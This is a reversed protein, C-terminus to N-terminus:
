GGQKALVIEVADGPCLLTAAWAARPVVRGNCAVAIGRMDPALEREILLDAITAAVLKEEAGNVHILAASAVESM